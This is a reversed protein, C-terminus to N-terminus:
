LRPRWVLGQLSTINAHLFQAWTRTHPYEAPLTHILESETIATTRGPVMLQRLRPNVLEFLVLDRTTRLKSYSWETLQTRAYTPSAVHQVEHFVTELAAAKLSSAAYLTPVNAASAGPFPNFRAGDEALDMRRGANPNFSNPTYISKHFRFLGTGQRLNILQVILPSSSTPAIPCDSSM